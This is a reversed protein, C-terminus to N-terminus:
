GAVHYQFILLISKFSSTVGTAFPGVNVYQAGAQDPQHEAASRARSSENLRRFSQSLSKGDIVCSNPSASLVSKRLIKVLLCCTRYDKKGSLGFM